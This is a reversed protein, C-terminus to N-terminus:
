FQRISNQNLSHTALLENSLHEEHIKSIITKFRLFGARFVGSCRFQWLYQRGQWLISDPSIQQCIRKCTEDVVECADYEHFICISAFNHCAHYTGAHMRRTFCRSVPQTSTASSVKERQLSLSSNVTTPRLRELRKLASGSLCSDAKTLQSPSWEPRSKQFVPNCVRGTHVSTKYWSRVSANRGFEGNM